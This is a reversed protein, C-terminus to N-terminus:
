VHIVENLNSPSLYDRDVVSERLHNSHPGCIREEAADLVYHLFRATSVVGKAAIKGGEDIVFAYPTALVQYQKSVEWGEQVAVPFRARIEAAWEATAGPEGNNVVLVQQEGTQHLRNLEPVIDHCPGCGSRTFVLLVPRGAFNSLSIEGGVTAPLTFDPAKNGPPLGERGKRAPRTAELEEFRWKLLGLSRLTGLLLFGVGLLLIWLAINSMVLFANMLNAEM